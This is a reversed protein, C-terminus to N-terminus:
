DYGNSQNYYTGNIIVWSDRYWGDGILNYVGDEKPANKKAELITSFEGIKQFGKYLRYM